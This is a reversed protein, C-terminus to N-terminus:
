GYRISPLLNQIAEYCDEATLCIHVLLLFSTAVYGCSRGVLSLEELHALGRFAWCLLIPAYIAFLLMYFPGTGQRINEYDHLLHKVATVSTTKSINAAAKILSTQASSVLFLAMFQVTTGILNILFFSALKHSLIESPHVLFTGRLIAVTQMIIETGLLIISALVLM